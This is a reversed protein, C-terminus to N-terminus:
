DKSFYELIRAARGEDPPTGNAEHEAGNSPAPSPAAAPTSRSGARLRLEAAGAVAKWSTALGNADEDIAEDVDAIRDGDGFADLMEARLKKIRVVERDYAEVDALFRDAAQEVRDRAARYQALDEDYSALRELRQAEALEARKEVLAAENRRVADQTESLRQKLSAIEGQLSAFSSADNEARARLEELEAELQEVEGSIVASGV